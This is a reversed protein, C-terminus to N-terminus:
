GLDFKHIKTAKYLTNKNNQIISKKIKENEKTALKRWYLSPTIVINQIDHEIKERAASIGYVRQITLVRDDISRLEMRTRSVRAM